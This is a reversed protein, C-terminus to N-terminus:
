VIYREMKQKIQETKAMSLLHEAVQKYRDKLYDEIEYHYTNEGM